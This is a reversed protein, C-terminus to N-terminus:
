VLSGSWIVELSARSHSWSIDPPVSFSSGRLLGTLLEFTMTKIGLQPTDKKFSLVLVTLWSKNPTEQCLTSTISPLFVRNELTVYGDNKELKLGKYCKTFHKGCPTHQRFMQQSSSFCLWSTCKCESTASQRQSDCSHPLSDTVGKTKLKRNKSIIM